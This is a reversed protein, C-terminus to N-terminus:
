KHFTSNFSPSSPKREDHRMSYSRGLFHLISATNALCLSIVTAAKAFIESTAEGVISLALYPSAKISSLLFRLSNCLTNAESLNLPDGRALNSVTSTVFIARHLKYDFHRLLYLQWNALYKRIVVREPKEQCLWVTLDVISSHKLKQWLESLLNHKIYHYMLHYRGEMQFLPYLEWRHGFSIPDCSPLFSHTLWCIM